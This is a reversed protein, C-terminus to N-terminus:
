ELISHSKSPKFTYINKTKLVASLIAIWLNVIKVNLWQAVEAITDLVYQGPHVMLKKTSSWWRLEKYLNESTGDRLIYGSPFGAMGIDDTGNYRSLWGYNSKLKEVFGRGGSAEIFGQWENISPLYWGDLCLTINENM